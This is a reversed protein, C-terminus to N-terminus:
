RICRQKRLSGMNCRRSKIERINSENGNTDKDNFAVVGEWAGGSLDYIGSINGTSSSLKGIEGNYQQEKSPETDYTSNYITNEEEGRGAGTIYKTSQNVSVEKANRGYKSHTLYAVAGWESNKMLHSEKSSDDNKGNTYMKGISIWRWSSVNLKSVAKIITNTTVDGETNNTTDKHVNSEEKSM